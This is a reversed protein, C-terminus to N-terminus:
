KRDFLHTMLMLTGAPVFWFFAMGVQWVEWQWYLSASYAAVAAGVIPIFAIIFASLWSVIPLWDTQAEILEIIAFLQLTSSLLYGILFPM